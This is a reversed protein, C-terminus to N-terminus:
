NFAEKHYIVYDKNIWIQDEIGPGWEYTKDVLFFGKSEMFASIEEPSKHNPQTKIHDTEMHILKIDKIRLGFGQLVEWTFGEVDVKVVDLLGSINNSRLFSDMRTVPVTITNVKGEFQSETAVKEAYISSCGVMGLDDSVVQQFETEGEYDSIATYYVDMWPYASKAREYARPDADIAIVKNSHLRKKLWVADDGDRTGIDLITHAKKGFYKRYNTVIPEMVNVVDKEEAFDKITRLNSTIGNRYAPSLEYNDLLDKFIDHSEKDRGIWWGSVAKEFLLAYKGPYEVDVPLPEQTGAHLLGLDAYTYAEQWEGQREYFRSLYFYAEPRTPIYSIAQLISTLSSHGRGKQKDFCLAVRLLSTYTINPHTIYGYEAARLYFSVASATQNIKLYEEGIWFNTNPNFPDYSAREVLEKISDV